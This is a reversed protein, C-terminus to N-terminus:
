IHGGVLWWRGVRHACSSSFLTLPLSSSISLPICSFLTLHLDTTRRDLACLQETVLSVFTCSHLLTLDIHM